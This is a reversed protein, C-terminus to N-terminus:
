WGTRIPSAGATVHRVLDDGEGITEFRSGGTGADRLPRRHVGLAVDAREPCGPEAACRPLFVSRDVDIPVVRRQLVDRVHLRRRQEEDALTVRADRHWLRDLHIARQLAVAYRGVQVRRWALRVSPGLQTVLQELQVHLDFPELLVRRLARERPFLGRAVALRVRLAMLRCARAIAPRAVAQMAIAALEADAPACSRRGIVSTSRASSGRIM